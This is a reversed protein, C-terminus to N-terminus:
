RRGDDTENRFTSATLSNKDVASLREQERSIAWQVAAEVDAAEHTPIHNPGGFEPEYVGTRVLVSHWGAGNAGAIDTISTFSTMRYILLPERYRVRPQRHSFGNLPGIWFYARSSEGGIMYRTLNALTPQRAFQFYECMHDHCGILVM